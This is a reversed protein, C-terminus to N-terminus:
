APPARARRCAPSSPSTASWARSTSAAAARHAARSSRRRAPRPVSVGRDLLDAAGRGAQRAQRRGRGRRGGDGRDLARRLASRRRRRLGARHGRDGAPRRAHQRRRLFRRGRGARVLRHVAVGTHAAINGEADIVHLQRHERGGDAEILAYVVDEADCDRRCCSSGARVTSRISWHRRRWRASAATRTRVCRASPSLAAPSPSASPAAGSRPRRDVLDHSLGNDCSSALTPADGHSRTRPDAQM